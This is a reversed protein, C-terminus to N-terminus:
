KEGARRVQEALAGFDEDLRSRCPLRFDGYAITWALEETGPYFTGSVTWAYHLGLRERGRTEIGSSLARAFSISARFFVYPRAILESQKFFIGRRDMHGECSAITNAGAANLADTLPRVGPEILGRAVADGYALNGSQFRHTM